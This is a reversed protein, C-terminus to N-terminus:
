RLVATGHSEVPHFLAQWLAKRTDVLVRDPDSADNITQEIRVHVNTRGPTQPHRHRPNGDADTAQAEGPRYLRAFANRLLTAVPTGTSAQAGLIGSTAVSAPAVSELQIGLRRLKAALWDLASGLAHALGRVMPMFDNFLSLIMDGLAKALIRILPGLVSGLADVFEGLQSSLQEFIPRLRGLIEDAVRVLTNWFFVLGDVIAFLAASLGPLAAALMDGMTDEVLGFLGVIPDVVALLKDFVDRLRELVGFMTGSHHEFASAVAGAFLGVGPVGAAAGVAGAAAVAAGGRTNPVVRGVLNGAAEVVGRLRAFVPGDVFGKFSAWLNLLAIKASVFGEAMNFGIGRAIGELYKQNQSFWDNIDNLTRKVREFLPETGIRRLEALNSTATSSIAAWTNQYADIMPQYAALADKVKKLREEPKLANFTSASMRVQARLFDTWSRVQMGARGGLIMNLDRGLQASDINFSIGVAAFQNTFKAIDAHRMGAEIAAPLGARFVTIFDEAEGPLAAADRRIQAMDARAVGMAQSMSSTVGGAQLMGALAVTTSETQNQIGVISAWLAHFAGTAFSVGRALAMGAFVGLLSTQLRDLAGGLADVKAHLKDLGSEANQQKTDYVTTVRYETSGAVSSM